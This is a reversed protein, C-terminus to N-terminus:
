ATDRIPELPIPTPGAEIWPVTYRPWERAIWVNWEEEGGTDVIYVEDPQSDAVADDAAVAVEDFLVGLETGNLPEIVLILRTLDGCATALEGLAEFEGKLQGVGCKAYAMVYTVAGTRYCRAVRGKPM